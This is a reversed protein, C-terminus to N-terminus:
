YKTTAKREQYSKVLSLVDDLLTKAYPYNEEVVAIKMAKKFKRLEKELINKDITSNSNNTM